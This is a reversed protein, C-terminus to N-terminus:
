SSPWASASTPLSVLLNPSPLFGLFFVWAVDDVVDGRTHHSPLLGLMERRKEQRQRPQASKCQEEDTKHFNGLPSSHHRHPSPLSYLGTKGNKESSLIVIAPSARQNRYPSLPPYAWFGPFDNKRSSGSPLLRRPVPSAGSSSYLCTYSHSFLSSFSLSWVSFLSTAM